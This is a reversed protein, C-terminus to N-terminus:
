QLFRNKVSANPVIGREVLREGERRSGTRLWKEYARLLDTNSTLASRESVETLVDVFDVFKEALEAFVQAFSEDDRRSLSGYAYGGMTIYYDLDVPARNLSDAFFGSIFLSLDGVERLGNRQRAGASQLARALRLALAEDRPGDSGRKPRAAFGALLNVVYYSTLEGAHVRQHDLAGEVLEKFYEVVTERYILTGM